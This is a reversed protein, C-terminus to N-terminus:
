ASNQLMESASDNVRHKCTRPPPPTCSSIGAKVNPLIRGFCDRTIGARELDVFIITIDKSSSPFLSQLIVNQRLGFNDTGTPIAEIGVPKKSHLPTENKLPTVFKILGFVISCTFPIPINMCHCSSIFQVIPRRFCSLYIIGKVFVIQGDFSSSQIIFITDQRAFHYSM